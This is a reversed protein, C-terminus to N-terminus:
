ARTSSDLGAQDPVQIRNSNFSFSPVWREASKLNVLYAAHGVQSSKSWEYWTRIFVLAVVSSAV